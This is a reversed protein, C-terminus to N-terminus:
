KGQLLSGLWVMFVRVPDSDSESESESGFKGFLDEVLEVFRELLGSGMGMGMSDMHMHTNQDQSDGYGGVLMERLHTIGNGNDLLRGLIDGDIHMQSSKRRGSGVGVELLSIDLPDIRKKRKANLSFPCIISDRICIIQIFRLLRWEKESLIRFRYISGDLSTGYLSNSISTSDSDAASTRFLKRVSVPLHAEALADPMLKDNGAVGVETLVSITGGGSSTLILCPDSQIRYHSMGEHKIRDHAHLTLKRDSAKLVVLSERATSLYLYPENVIISIAPSLLTYRAKDWQAGSSKPVLPVVDYGTAVMLTFDGYPAIAYVPGEFHHVHKTSCEIISPNTTSRAARLFIVRGKDQQHKRATGIVVWHYKEDGREPTWDLITSIKEGAATFPRWPARDDEREDFPQIAEIEPSQIDPDVFDVYSRM